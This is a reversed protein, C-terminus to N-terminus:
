SLGSEGGLDFQQRRPNANSTADLQVLLIELEQHQGARPQDSDVIVTDPLLEMITVLQERGSTGNVSRLRQGVSLSLDPPFRNRAISRVTKLEISNYSEWPKLVLRRRDGPTMGLVGKSVTPCVQNSGVRFECSKRRRHKEADSGKEPVRYYQVRVRDGLEAEHM